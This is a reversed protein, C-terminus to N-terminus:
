SLRLLVALCSLPSDLDRSIQKLSSTTTLSLLSGFISVLKQIVLVM